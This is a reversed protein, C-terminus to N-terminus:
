GGCHYNRAPKGRSRDRSSAPGDADQRPRGENKQSHSKVLLNMCRPPSSIVRRVDPQVALAARGAATEAKAERPARASRDRSARPPPPPKRRAAQAAESTEDSAEMAAIHSDAPITSPSSRSRRIWVSARSVPAASLRPASTDALSARLSIAPCTSSTRRTDATISSMVARVLTRAMFAAISAAWAPSRPRPKATTASSIRLSASDVAEFVLDMPATSEAAPAFAASAEFSDSRESRDKSGSAAPM